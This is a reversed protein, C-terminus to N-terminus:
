IKEPPPLPIQLGTKDQIYQIFAEIVDPDFHTGSGKIIHDLTREKSWPARYPRDSTLADYVDIVAFIRAALPIQHGKLGRPYGSGDWKEHHCYPIELAQQLFRIPNLLQYAYVPHKRMIVWEEDTLPGPKLLIYDPIGMKGIDHLLAGRRVHLLMSEDVGMRKALELTMETVRLTHGETEKDRLDLAASWGELTEDYAQFLEQNSQQLGMFLYANDIAIAAQGALTELYQMWEPEPEFFSRQLVELVGTLKGQSLLPVGIYSHFGEYKHLGDYVYPDDVQDLRPVVRTKRDWAIKGALGQGVSIIVREVESNVVSGYGVSYQLSQTNNNFLLIAASDVQLQKGIEDLVVQLVAQLERGSSIALDINRLAQTRSLRREAEEYLLANSIALAAQDAIGTLLDIEDTSLRRDEQKSLVNITGILEGDRRLSAVAASRMGAELCLRIVPTDQEDALNPIMMIRDQEEGMRSKQIKASLSYNELVEGPFTSHVVKFEDKKKNYLMVTAATYGIANIVEECILRSVTKLDLNANLQGAIRVLTQALERQLRSMEEVQKRATIDVMVGHWTTSGDEERVPNSHVEIWIEGKEPNLVRYEERYPKLDQMSKVLANHNRAVDDPHNMEFMLQTADEVLEEPDVGYIEKIGPGAFPYCIKGGPKTRISHIVGPSVAAIKLFREKEERLSRETKEYDTIDRILFICEDQGKATVRAEFVRLGNEDPLVYKFQQRERSKLAREIAQMGAQAIEEPFLVEMKKNLFMEPPAFLQNRGDAKYDLFTGDRSLRFMLDPIADLLARSRTESDQLALMAREQEKERRASEDLLKQHTKLLEEQNIKLSAELRRYRLALHAFLTIIVGVIIAIFLDFLWPNLDPFIFEQSLRLLIMVLVTGTFLLGLQWYFSRVNNKQTEVGQTSSSIIGTKKM